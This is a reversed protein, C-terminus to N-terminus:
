RVRRVAESAPVKTRLGDPGVLVEGLPRRPTAPLDSRSIEQWGLRLLLQPAVLGGLVEHHLVRRTEEVEVVQSMPVVSLGDRGARLWLESLAEGAALWAEPGDDVTCLAVLGDSSALPGSVARESWRREEAAYRGDHEQVSGARDVLVGVRVRDAVSTLPVAQVGRHGLGHTLAQLHEELVPWSTFRRRDTRRALLVHLEGSIGPERQTRTLDLRALLDPREPDPHRTVVADYALSAAAVRAHHLAAGCSLMLNRGSPDAVVLQRSRDAYLEILDDGIRWGWPQTNHVSPARCALEVIRASSPRSSM